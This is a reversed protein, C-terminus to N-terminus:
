NYIRYYYGNYYEDTRYITVWAGNTVRYAFIDQIFLFFAFIFFIYRPM